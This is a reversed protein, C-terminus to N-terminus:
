ATTPATLPLEISITTGRGPPSELVLHGGLADVRDGLGILGSGLVPAAGGVGDDAITAQLRDGDRWVSVSISSAQSHRIANTLAESVVYYAAIEIAEGPREPLDVRLEVPIPSRRALAAISPGLGRRSLLPPHLGRSLERVEELVSELDQEVLELGARGDVEGEPLAARARQLDFGLAILRQQTGDHLNREIRRRAEDGAAIVRRRSAALESKSEANAIATAVLEAFGALRQEIGPSPPEDGTGGVLVLGWLRGEVSVPAAVASAIGMLKATKEASSGPAYADVRAPRGTRRVLDAAGGEGVEFRLGVPVDGGIASWGAVLTADDGTEYRTVFVRGAEFLLGVEEAVTAFVDLPPADGAVRTAVRRLAAQEDALRRQENRAENNSLATALIETFEQLRQETGAPLMTGLRSFASMTGWLRGDVVIPTGASSGIESKRAADGNVGVLDSYDNIRAAKRGEWVAACLSGPELPFNAGVYLGQGGTTWGPELELALTTISTGASDYRDLVVGSVGLINRVESAVASFLEDATAGEAVLTAVRRLAAQEEALQRLGDRSEANLVATAILDTFESLRDVTEDPLPEPETTAVCVAGWVTRNVIIPVAVASFFGADRTQTAIVGSPASFDDVRAPRGTEFVAETVSSGELPWSSGVPFATDNISAVVLATRDPEYRILWAAPVGVVEVVEKVVAAGLTSTTAGEAVLL